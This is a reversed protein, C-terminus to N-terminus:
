RDSLVVTERRSREVEELAGTRVLEHVLDIASSRLARPCPSLSVPANMLWVELAGVREQEAPPGVLQEGARPTRSPGPHGTM